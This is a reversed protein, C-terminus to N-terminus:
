GDVDVGEPYLIFEKAGNEDYGIITQANTDPNLEVEYWYTVPKNIVDGIRTDSSTLNITAETTEASVSKTKKIVVIDSAKAKTVQFRIIDGVSFSHDSGDANKATIRLSGVDGRTVHIIEDQIKFM